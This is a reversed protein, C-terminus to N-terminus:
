PAKTEDDYIELWDLAEDIAQRDGFLRAIGRLFFNSAQAILNINGSRQSDSSIM